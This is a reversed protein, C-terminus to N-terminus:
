GIICRSADNEYVVAYHKIVVVRGRGGILLYLINANIRRSSRLLYGRRIERCALEGHM